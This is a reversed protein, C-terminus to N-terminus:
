RLVRDICGTLAYSAARTGKLGVRMEDATGPFIIMERAAIFYDSFTNTLNRLIVKRSGYIQFEGTLRVTGISKGRFAIEGVFPENMHSNVPYWNPNKITMTTYQSGNRKPFVNINIQAGNGWYTSVVCSADNNGVHGTITWQGTNRRFVEASLASSAMFALAITGAVIKKFM